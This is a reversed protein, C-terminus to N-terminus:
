QNVIWHIYQDIYNPEKLAEFHKLDRIDIALHVVEVIDLIRGYDELPRLLSRKYAALQNAEISGREVELLEVMWDRVKIGGDKLGKLQDRLMSMQANIDTAFEEVRREEEAEVEPNRIRTHDYQQREARIKEVKQRIELAFTQF